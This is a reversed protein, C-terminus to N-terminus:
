DIFLLASRTKLDAAKGQGDPVGGEGRQPLPHVAVPTKMLRPRVPSPTLRDAGTYFLMLEALKILLVGHAPVRYFVGYFNRFEKSNESKRTRTTLAM